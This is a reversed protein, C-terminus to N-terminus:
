NKSICNPIRLRYINLNSKKHCFLGDDLCIILYDNKNQELMKVFNICSPSYEIWDDPFIILWKM